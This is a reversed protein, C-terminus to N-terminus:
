FSGAGVLTITDSYDTAAPTTGAITAYEKLTVIAGNATGTSTALQRPTADLGSGNGAGSSAYATTASTVGAGSGQTIGAAPLGTLYGEVGNVLSANSGPTKSPITYNQATSKIGTNSDYGWLFWGTKANTNVTATVGTTGTTSGSSLNSTFSDTNGSLALTFSPAVTASVVVQDNSIVDIAVTATDTNDTIVVPYVGAAPNTVASTSTLIACYSQGSTLTNVSSVTIVQGSGAASLTGTTPLVNGAGTLATCGTTTITQTANVTGGWSGFNLTLTGSPDAAGAKFAFAIESTGTANMNYEMVTANTMSTAFVKPLFVFNVALLALALLGFIIRKNLVNTM